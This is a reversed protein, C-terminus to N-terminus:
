ASHTQVGESSVRLLVAATVCSTTAATQTPAPKTRPRMVGAGTGSAGVMELGTFTEGADLAGAGAGGVDVMERGM